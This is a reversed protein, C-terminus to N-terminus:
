ERPLPGGNCAGSEFWRRESRSNQIFRASDVRTKLVTLITSDRRAFRPAWEAANRARPPTTDKFQQIATRITAAQTSDPSLSRTLAQFHCERAHEPSNPARFAGPTQARLEPPRGVGSCVFGLLLLTRLRSCTRATRM